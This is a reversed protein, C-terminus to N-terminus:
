SSLGIDGIFHTVANSEDVFHWKMVADM